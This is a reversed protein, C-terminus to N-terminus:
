LARHRGPRLRSLAPRDCPPAVRRRALHRRSQARPNGDPTPAGARRHTKRDRGAGRRPRPFLNRRRPKNRAAKAAGLQTELSRHTSALEAARKAYDATEERIRLNEAEHQARRDEALKLEQALREAARRASDERAKQEAQAKAAIEASATIAAAEARATEAAVASKRHQAYAFGFLGFMVVPAVIHFPKM